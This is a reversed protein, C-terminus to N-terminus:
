SANKVKNVAATVTAQWKSMANALFGDHYERHKAYNATWGFYITTGVKLKSLTIAYSPASYNGGPDGRVPGSPLGSFSPQGSARLFGTDVHMLGGKATSLQAINITDNVAEKLVTEIKENTADAWKKVTMSFNAM